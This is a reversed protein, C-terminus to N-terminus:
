ERGCLQCLCYTVPVPLVPDDIDAGARYEKATHRLTDRVAARREARSTGHRTWPQTSAWDPVYTFCRAEPDLCSVQGRGFVWHHHRTRLATTSRAREVHDPVHADTRSM